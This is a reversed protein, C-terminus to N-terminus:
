SVAQERPAAKLIADIRAIQKETLPPADAAFRAAAAALWKAREERLFTEREAKLQLRLRVLEPDDASLSRTLAALRARTHTWDSM